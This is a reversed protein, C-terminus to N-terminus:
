VAGFFYLGGDPMIGWYNPYGLYIKDYGDLNEPM